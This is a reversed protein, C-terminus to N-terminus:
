GRMLGTRVSFNRNVTFVSKFDVVTRVAVTYKRRGHECHYIKNTPKKSLEKLNEKIKKEVDM